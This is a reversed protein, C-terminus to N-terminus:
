ACTRWLLSQRALRNFGLFGRLNKEIRKLGKKMKLIVAQSAGISFELLLQFYL